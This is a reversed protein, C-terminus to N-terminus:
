IIVEESFTLYHSFTPVPIPLKISSGIFATKLIAADIVCSENSRRLIVGIFFEGGNGIPGVKVMESICHIVSLTLLQLFIRWVM